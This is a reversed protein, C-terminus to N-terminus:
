LATQFTTFFPVSVSGGTACGAALAPTGAGASAVGLSGLALASALLRTVVFKVM